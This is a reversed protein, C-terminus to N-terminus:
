RSASKRKRIAYRISNMGVILAFIVGLEGSARGWNWGDARILAILAVLLGAMSVWLLITLATKKTQRVPSSAAAM